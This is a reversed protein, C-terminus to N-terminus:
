LRAAALWAVTAQAVLIAAVAALFSAKRTKHRALVMGLVLGPSGGALAIGLLVREPVRRRGNGAARKDAVCLVLALASALAIWALAIEFTSM